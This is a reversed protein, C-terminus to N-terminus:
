KLGRVRIGSEDEGRTMVKKVPYIIVTPVLPPLTGDMIITNHKGDQSVAFTHNRMLSDCEAASEVAEGRSVHVYGSASFSDCFLILISRTTIEIKRNCYILDITIGYVYNIGIWRTIM